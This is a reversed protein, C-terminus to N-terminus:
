NITIFIPKEHKDGYKHWFYKIQKLAKEKSKPKESEYVDLCSKLLECYQKDNIRDYNLELWNFFTDFDKIIM